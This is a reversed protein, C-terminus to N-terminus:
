GGLEQSMKAYRNGSKIGPVCIAAMWKQKRKWFKNRSAKKEIREKLFYIAKKEGSLSITWNRHIIIRIRTKNSEGSFENEKIYTKKERECNKNINQKNVNERM